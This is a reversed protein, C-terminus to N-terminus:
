SPSSRMDQRDDPPPSAEATGGAGAQAKVQQGNCSRKGIRYGSQQRRRICMSPAASRGPCPTNYVGTDCFRSRQSVDNFPAAACLLSRRPRGSCHARSLACTRPLAHRCGAPQLLSMGCSMAAERNGGRKGEGRRRRCQVSELSCWGDLLKRMQRSLKRVLCKNLSLVTPPLRTYGQENSACHQELPRTHHCFRLVACGLAEPPTM